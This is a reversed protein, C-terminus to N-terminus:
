TSKVLSYCAAHMSKALDRNTQKKRIIAALKQDKPYLQAVKFNLAKKDSHLQQRVLHICQKLSMNDISHKYQISTKHKPPRETRIPIQPRPVSKNIDAYIASHTPPLTYNQPSMSTKTIPIDWLDDQWNQTGNLIIKNNKLIEIQRRNTTGCM